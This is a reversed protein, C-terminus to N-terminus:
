RQKEHAIYVFVVLVVISAIIPSIQRSVFNDVASGIDVFGITGAPVLSNIYNTLSTIVGIVYDSVSFLFLLGLFSVALTIIALLKEM